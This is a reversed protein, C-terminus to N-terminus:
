KTLQTGKFLYKVKMPRVTRKDEKKPRSHPLLFTIQFPVLGQRDGRLSGIFALNGSFGWCQSHYGCMWSVAHFGVGHPILHSERDRCGGRGTAPGNTSERNKEAAIGGARSHRQGVGWGCTKLLAARSSGWLSVGLLWEKRGKDWSM